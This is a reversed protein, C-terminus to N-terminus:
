EIDARKIWGEVTASGYYRIKIWENNKELIEIASGQPIIVSSRQYSSSYIYTQTKSTKTLSRKKLNKIFEQVFKPPNIVRRFEVINEPSPNIGNGLIFNDPKDKYIVLPDSGRNYFQTDNVFDVLTNIFNTEFSSSLTGSATDFCINVDKLLSDVSVKIRNMEDDWLSKSCYYYRYSNSPYGKPLLGLDGQTYYTYICNNYFIEYNQDANAHDEDKVQVWAYGDLFDNM